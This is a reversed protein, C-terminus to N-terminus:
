ESAELGAAPTARAATAGTWGCPRDPAPRSASARWRRRSAARGSSGGGCSARRTRRRPGYEHQRSVQSQDPPGAAAPEHLAAVPHQVGRQEGGPGPRGRRPRTTGQPRWSGRRRSGPGRGARDLPGGRTRSEARARWACRGVTQRGRARTRAEEGRGLAVELEVGAGGEVLLGRQKPDGPGETRDQDDGQGGM